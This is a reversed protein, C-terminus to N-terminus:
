ACRHYPSGIKRNSRDEPTEPGTVLTEPIAPETIATEPTAPVVPTQSAQGLRLADARQKLQDIIPANGLDHKHQAVQSQLASAAAEVADAFEIQPTLQSSLIDNLLQEFRWAFEGLATEGVMRSSGKLTHFSRRIEKLPRRENLNSRWRPLQESINAIEGQVEELYIEIIEDDQPLSPMSHTSSPKTSEFSVIDMPEASEHTESKQNPLIDYDMGAEVTLNPESFASIPQQALLASLENLCHEAQDLVAQDPDDDNGLLGLYSELSVVVQACGNVFFRRDILESNAAIEEVLASLQDTISAARSCDLIVFLGCVIGLVPLIEEWDPTEDGDIYTTAFLWVQDIRRGGEQAILRRARKLELEQLLTLASREDMAHNAASTLAQSYSPDSFSELCSQVAALDSASALLQPETAIEHGSLWHKIQATQKDILQKPIPLELMTLVNAVQMLRQPEQALAQTETPKRAFQDILEQNHSLEQRLLAAVSILAKRDLSGSLTLGSKATAQVQALEQRGQESNALHHELRQCLNSAQAGDKQQMTYARLLRDLDRLLMRFPRDEAAPKSLALRCVAAALGWTQHFVTEKTMERLQTFVESAQHLSNHDGHLFRLFAQQLRRRLEIIRTETDTQSISSSPAPVQQGIRLARLQDILPLLDFYPKNGERQLWEFYRPAQLLVESLLQRATDINIPKKDDLHQSLLWTERMLSAAQPLELMAFVGHAQRTGKTLAALVDSDDPKALYSEFDRQLQLLVSEM